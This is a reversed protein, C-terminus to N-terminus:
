KDAKEAEKTSKKLPTATKEFAGGAKTIAAKVSASAAQVKLTVKATLEGRAIVKVSHFPTGIYGEEFLTFNDATKGEFANLHDLYVVQAPTRLSKFGRAKPVATVLSRQGGQFMAGLKKGTRAGQGKTGRGATKGQGAAIGRGVRKRDKNAAVQLENYKM